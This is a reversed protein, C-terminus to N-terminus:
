KRMWDEVHIVGISRSGVVVVIRADAAWGIVRIRDPSQGPDPTVATIFPIPVNQVLWDEADLDAIYLYHQRASTQALTKPQISFGIQAKRRFAVFLALPAAALDGLEARFRERCGLLREPLSNDSGGLPYESCEAVVANYSIFRGGLSKPSFRLRRIVSSGASISRVGAGFSFSRGLPPVEGSITIRESSASWSSPDASALSRHVLSYAYMGAGMEGLAASRDRADSGPNVIRILLERRDPAEYRLEVAGIRPPFDTVPHSAVSPAERAWLWAALCVGCASTIGITVGHLKYRRSGTTM